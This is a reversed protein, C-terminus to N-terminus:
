AGSSPNVRLQNNGQQTTLKFLLVSNQDLYGASDLRFVKRKASQSIPELTESRIDMVMPSMDVNYNFLGMEQQPAQNM